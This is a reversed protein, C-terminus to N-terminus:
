NRGSARSLQLEFEREVVALDASELDAYVAGLGRTGALGNWARRREALRADSGAQCSLRRRFSSEDVLVIVPGEAASELRDLFVGHNETEPTSGLNFLAILLDTGAAGDVGSVTSDEEGYDTTRSFKLDVRDGFLHRALRRLGESAADAPTYAYPAVRVRAPVERWASLVRRFYPDDLALPFDAAIRRERWAAIAALGLRPVVLWLMATAAYMHIWRAANEGGGASWRLAAIEAVGPFPVGVLRAVPQLFFALLSHVANADLFTSDWGARYELVLGRLYLGAIVGLALLAAALHLVRAARAALLPSSRQTWDLAFRGFAAALPGAADPSFRARVGFIQEQLWGARRGTGRVLTRAVSAALMLYVALNWLLLGLLPFALINVRQRDAIHEAAAGLVLALLPLLVGIWPWWRMAEFARLAKPHRQALKDTLLEARRALYAASSPREAQEAAQWRTQEAAIREAYGRDEASLLKHGSDTSEVARIFSIKKAGAENM